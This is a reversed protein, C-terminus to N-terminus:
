RRNVAELGYRLYTTLNRIYLGAPFAYEMYGASPCLIGRGCINLAEACRDIESMVTREDAQLLTQIEINGEMGIRGGYKRALARLDVDGNPCNDPELPNLVDVGMEIFRDVFNSTKGHCHLWTYGGGNHIDDCVPKDYAFVFDEFDGPSLLPPILVEPGVWSYPGPIGAALANQVHDRLRARYTDLLAFVMDRRDRSILALTESGMLRHLAYGCHDIGFMVIGRDGMEDVANFYPSADFPYPTYPISLLKEIDDPSKVLHSTVYSPDGDKSCREVSRLEGKPTHWVTHRDYWPTGALPEDYYTVCDKENRGFFINFASSGGGFLDTTEYALERVPKYDRHLLYPSPSAGWLKLAPRDIDQKKFIRWLREKRTM